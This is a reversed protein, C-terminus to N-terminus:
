DRALSEVIIENAQKHPLNLIDQREPSVPPVPSVM